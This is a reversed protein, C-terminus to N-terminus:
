ASWTDYAYAHVISRAPDWKVKTLLEISHKEDSPARGLM